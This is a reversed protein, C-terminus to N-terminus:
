FRYVMTLQLARAPQQNRMGLYNPNFQENAGNYNYQTYDGANMINFINAALEVSNGRGVDIKKGAKLGLTKQAPAMVQGDGRTEFAFRMRTSLPNSQTVGTSSRVTSPGFVALQPDGVPLQIVVPGTWPGAEVTYSAALVVGYPAYWSGGFNLRYKQWTPGYTHVTTGTAIPLSNDENNGRPMYLLKDNAFASPQIFRAPDTPNWDGSMHQWQRNIGAMFQFGHSLNKTATLELATYNLKSWSNNTQQFVIGRNPDVKGFGGFPQNPGSPYFGNIDIRAYMDSYIRHIGAVDIGISYPLQMRYGLIAEDLYPQHLNPDFESAALSGTRAPTAISTEFSGNSDLDYTDVIGVAATGGGFLTVADRGMMQEGLRVYSGRLVNKANRTVLYSFGLRPQLIHANERVVDFIKDYRRVWDVRLGLNATLRPTPKWNDQFYLAFNRDRAMRTNVELSSAVRRHFPITGKSPDTADLQRQEEQIFGGNLYKSTTDYTSRPAGFFGTQFEHSGALGDKFYTFDARLTIQSSPLYSYLAQGNGDDFNGGSVLRGSGILRGGTLSAERHITITPGSDVWGEFTSADSGGKNNYSALVTTTMRQGWVSTVKGGYLGGGTSYVNTRSFNYERDGTANLRDQQVFAAVQHRGAQMTVKGYPQTSKTSNNFLEVNPSFARLRQVEVATRSIGAELDARRVSGFFWIKDRQIPGGVGGDFQRIIATTPTGVASSTAPKCSLSASCNNVNNGNWGSPQYAFAGSGKFTNGGSKTIVNINLGVGMPASADVGGTKVQTDSVMDAGMAVYTIQADQYNSAIAGELQVVHAFHETSHGFYVMRGSGDDFPRSHVGPTIELFDSWNRRAQIPMERQFEGSINLVNSPNNVELMPSEGSVTISESLSALKMTMDVQFNAGGRLLIDQRKFPAFGTLEATVEYTGPPLNILRYYGAADTVSSVPVILVESRATVTVGPISAGQEDTIYGRLSGAGTQAAAVTSMGLLCVLSVAIVCRNMVM